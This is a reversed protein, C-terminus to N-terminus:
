LADPAGPDAILAPLADAAPPPPPEQATAARAAFLLGITAALAARRLPTSLIQNFM